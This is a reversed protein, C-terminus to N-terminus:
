ILSLLCSFSISCTFFYNGDIRLLAGAGSSGWKGVEALHAIADLSSSFNSVIVIKELGGSSSSNIDGGLSLFKRVLCHLVELKSSRLFVDSLQDSLSPYIKRKKSNDKSSTTDSQLGPAEGGILPPLSDCIQRLKMLQPLVNSACGINRVLEDAETRYSSMQPASLNCYVLVERRPPLFGGLVEEKTRRLLVGKLREKLEGERERAVSVEKASSAARKAREIPESFHKKFHKLTGFYNPCVFQVV